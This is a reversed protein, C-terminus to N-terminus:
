ESKSAFTLVREIQPHKHALEEVWDVTHKIDAGFQVRAQNLLQRRLDASYDHEPAKSYSSMIPGSTLRQVDDKDFSLDFHTSVDWLKKVPEKLFTDFNLWMVNQGELATLATMECLWGLAIQQVPSLAWLNAVPAEMRRNLRVLRPAALQTAEMRSGDGALITELYRPLSVYLCVAKSEPNMMEGAIESVFSSAKIITRQKDHFSRSLWSLCLARRAVYTEPSWPSHPEHKIPSIEALNRLIHPERLALVDPAEGILRSLLTSGVHGIHFIFYPLLLPPLILESLESWKATQRPLSDTIIRQDLFSAAKFDAERLRSILVQDTPIDLMHPFLSADHPFHTRLESTM